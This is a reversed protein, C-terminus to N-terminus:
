QFLSPQNICGSVAKVGIKRHIFSGDWDRKMPLVGSQYLDFLKVAGKKLLVPKYFTANKARVHRAEEALYKDRAYSSVRWEGANYLWGKDALSANVQMVNVGNLQKCFDSPTMGEAFLGELADIREAQATIQQTQLSVQQQLLHAQKASEAALFLAEHLTTPAQFKLQAELEMWRDVLNATFEPSMQAVVIISDRKGQEGTFVYCKTNKNPSLSQNNYVEGLPPLQIAGRNAAREISQKVKDHRAEVLQAIQLSNMEAAKNNFVSVEM